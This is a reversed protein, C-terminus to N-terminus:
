KIGDNGIFSDKHWYMKYQPLHNIGMMINAGFLARVEAVSTNEWKDDMYDPDNKQVRIEDRKFLAYDNTHTVIDSFM